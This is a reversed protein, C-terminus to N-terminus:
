SRPHAKTYIEKLLKPTLHTYIETTALNSHGLMEQVARLDAGNELLHSAFCHRLTHPTVNKNVSVTKLHKELIKQMERISLRNNKQSIFLANLGEKNLLNRMKIYKELWEKATNGFPVIREKSGKGLVKVIKNKLDIDSLNLKHIEGIRLGASYILEFVARNRISLISDDSFNDLLEKIEEQSIYSPLKKDIKPSKISSMINKEIFNNNFLWKFFGKLAAIKRMISKNNYNQKELYYFYFRMKIKDISKVETYDEYNSQLFEYWQIFDLNYNYLTKESKGKEYKLYDLYKSFLERITLIM